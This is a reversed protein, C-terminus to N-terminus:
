QLTQSVHELRLYLRFAVQEKVSARLPALAEEVKPDAMSDFYLNLRVNRHKKNKGWQRYNVSNAASFSREFVSKNVGVVFASCYPFKNSVVSPLKLAFTLLGHLKMSNTAGWDCVKRVFTFPYGSSFKERQHHLLFADFSLVFENPITIKVVRYECQSQNSSSTEM